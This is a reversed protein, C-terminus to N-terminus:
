NRNRNSKVSGGAAIMAAPLRPRVSPVRDDWGPVEEATGLLFPAKSGQM